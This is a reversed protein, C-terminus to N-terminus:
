RRQHPPWDRTMSQRYPTKRWAGWLARVHSLIRELKEADMVGPHQGEAIDLYSRADLKGQFVAQLPGVLQEIVLLEGELPTLSPDSLAKLDLGRSLRGFVGHDTDLESELAFHVFDHLLLSRSELEIVDTTGDPRSLSLQHRADSIKMWAIRM